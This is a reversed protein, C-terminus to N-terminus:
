REGLVLTTASGRFMASGVNINCRKMGRLEGDLFKYMYMSDCEFCITNQWYQRDNEDILHGIRSGGLPLEGILKPYLLQNYLLM